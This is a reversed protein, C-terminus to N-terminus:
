IFIFSAIDVQPYLQSSFEFKSKAGRKTAGPKIQGHDADRRM